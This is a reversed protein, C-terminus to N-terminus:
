LPEASEKKRLGETLSLPNESRIKSNKTSQWCDPMKKRRKESNISKTSCILKLDTKRWSSFTESRNLKRIKLPKFSSESRSESRSPKDEPFTPIKCFISMQFEKPNLTEKCNMAGNKFSLIEQNSCKTPKSKAKSIKDCWTLKWTQRLKGTAWKAKFNTSEEKSSKHKENTHLSWTM